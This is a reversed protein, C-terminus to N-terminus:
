LFVDLMAPTVRLVGGKLVQCKGHAQLLERLEAYASKISSTKKLQRSQIPYEIDCWATDREHPNENFLSRCISLLSSVWVFFFSFSFFSEGILAVLKLFLPKMDKDRDGTLDKPLMLADEDQDQRENEKGAFGFTRTERNEKWSFQIDRDKKLAKRFTNLKAQSYPSFIDERAVATSKRLPSPSFSTSDPGAKKKEV